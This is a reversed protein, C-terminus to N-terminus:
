LAWRLTTLEHVDIVDAKHTVVILGRESAVLSTVYGLNPLAYLARGDKASYAIVLGGKYAVVVVTPTVFAVAVPSTAACIEGNPEIKDGRIVSLELRDTIAAVQTGDPSVALGNVDAYTTMKDLLKKQDLSWLEVQKGNGAVAINLRQPVLLTVYASIARAAEPLAPPEPPLQAPKVDFLPAAPLGAKSHTGIRWRAHHKVDGHDIGDITLFYLGTYPARFHGGYTGDTQPGWPMNWERTLFPFTTMNKLSITTCYADDSSVLELVEHHHLAVIYDKMGPTFPTDIPVGHERDWWPSLQRPPGISDSWEPKDMHDMDLSTCGRGVLGFVVIFIACSGAAKPLGARAEARLVRALEAADIISRHFDRQDAAVASVRELPVAVLNDAQCYACRVGLAGPPVDLAAGCLRCTAPFGPREPARAALNAQLTKRIEGSTHLYGNLWLPFLVLVVLGIGFVAYATGGGLRDILDIGVLPAIWHLFLELAFGALLSLVAFASVLVYVVMLVAGGTMTTFAVWLDLARSPGGLTRYLHEAEARDARNEREADRLKRYEEPLPVQASCFACTAVDGTGLPVPANCKPCRLPALAPEVREGGGVLKAAAAKARERQKM